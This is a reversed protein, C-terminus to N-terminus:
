LRLQPPERGRAFKDELDGDSDVDFGDICAQIEHKDNAEFHYSMLLQEGVLETWKVDHANRTTGLVEPSSFGVTAKGGWYADNTDFNFEVATYDSYNENVSVVKCLVKYLRGTGVEYEATGEENLLRGTLKKKAM